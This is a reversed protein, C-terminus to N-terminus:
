TPDLAIDAAYAILSNQSNDTGVAVDVYLGGCVTIDEGNPALQMVQVKVRVQTYMEPTIQLLKTLQNNNLKVIEDDAGSLSANLASVRMVVDAPSALSDESDDEIGVYMDTPQGATLERPLAILLRRIVKNNDFGDDAGGAADFAVLEEAAEIGTKTLFYEYDSNMQVYSRTVLRKIAKGFRRDSMDLDDCIDDASAPDDGEGLYRIIDFAGRLTQLKKLNDSLEPM